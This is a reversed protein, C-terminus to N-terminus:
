GAAWFSLAVIFAAATSLVLRRSPPTSPIDDYWRKHARAEHARQFCRVCWEAEEPSHSAALAKDMYIRWSSDRLVWQKYRAARLALWSLALTAVVTSTLALIKLVM